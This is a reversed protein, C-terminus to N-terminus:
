SMQDKLQIYKKVGSAEVLTTNNYLLRGDPMKRYSSLFEYIRQGETVWFEHEKGNVEVWECVPLDNESYFTYTNYLGEKTYTYDEQDFDYYNRWYELHKEAGVGDIASNGEFSLMYKDNDGCTFMIAVDSVYDPFNYYEEDFYAPSCAAVAAFDASEQIALNQIMGAGNSFGVGYVRSKDINYEEEILDILGLLFGIDEDNNEWYTMGHEKSYLATPYIIIINENAAIRNLKTGYMMQFGSSNSGHLALILQSSEDGELASDPVYLWYERDRGNYEYYNRSVNNIAPVNGSKNNGASADTNGGDEDHSESTSETGSLNDMPSAALTSASFSFLTLMLFVTFVFCAKRGVCIKM